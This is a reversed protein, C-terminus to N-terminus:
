SFQKNYRDIVVQDYNILNTALMFSQQISTAISSAELPEFFSGTLGIAFCNGKWTEELYGATFRITRINDKAALEVNNIEEMAEDESLYNSDFIYGNGQKDQLPVKIFKAM